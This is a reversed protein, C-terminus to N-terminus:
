PLLVGLTIGELGAGQMDVTMFTPQDAGLMVTGTRPNSGSSQWTSECQVSTTGAGSLLTGGPGPDNPNFTSAKNCADGVSSTPTNPILNLNENSSWILYEGPDTTEADTSVFEWGTAPAGTATTLSINTVYIYSTGGESAMYLAPKSCSPTPELTGNV